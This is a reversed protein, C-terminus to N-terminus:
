HSSPSPRLRYGETVMVERKEAGGRSGEM